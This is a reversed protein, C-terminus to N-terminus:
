RCQGNPRRDPGRGPCQCPGCSRRRRTERRQREEQERERREIRACKAELVQFTLPLLEPSTHQRVWFLASKRLEASYGDVGEPVDLGELGAAIWPDALEPRRLLGAAAVAEEGYSYAQHEVFRQLVEGAEPFHECARCLRVALYEARRGHPSEVLLGTLLDPEARLRTTLFWDTFVEPGIWSEAAGKRTRGDHLEEAWWAWGWARDEAEEESLGAFEPLGALVDSTESREWHGFLLMGLMVHDPLGPRASLESAYSPTGKKGEAAAFDAAAHRWHRREHEFLLDAIDDFPRPEAPGPGGHLATVLAQAHLDLPSQGSRAPTPGDLGDLATPAAADGLAATMTVVAERYREDLTARDQAPPELVLVPTREVLYRYRGKAERELERALTRRFVDQHRTILLVRVAPREPSQSSTPGAEGLRKGLSTLLPVVYPHVWSHDPSVQAPVDAEDVIVLAPRGRGDLVGLWDPSPAILRGATWETGLSRALELALRSKGVGSEGALLMVPHTDTATTCWRRLEALEEDRDHFPVPSHLPSLLRFGSPVDGGRVGGADRVGPKSGYRGSTASPGTVALGPNELVKQYALLREIRDTHNMLMGIVGQVLFGGAALGGASWGLWPWEHPTGVSGAWGALIIMGAMACVVACNSVVRLATWTGQTPVVDDWNGRRESLRRRASM